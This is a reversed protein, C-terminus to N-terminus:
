GEEVWRWAEDLESTKFRRVEGPIFKAATKVYTGFLLGDAVVAVREVDKARELSFRPDGMFSGPSFTGLKEVHVLLRVKGHTAITRELRELVQDLEEGVIKGSARIGVVPGEGRDLIEIVASM